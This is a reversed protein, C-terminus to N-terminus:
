KKLFQYNVSKKEIEMQVFYIGSELSTVDIGNESSITTNLVVKGNVDIIRAPTKDLGKLSFNIRDMTPNPYISLGEIQEESLGLTSGEIIIHQMNMDPNDIIDVTGSLWNVIVQDITTSIGIGFHAILSTM